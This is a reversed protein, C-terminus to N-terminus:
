LIDFWHADIDYIWNEDELTYKFGGDTFYPFDYDDNKVLTINYKREIEEKLKDRDFSTYLNRYGFVSNDYLKSKKRVEAILIKNM